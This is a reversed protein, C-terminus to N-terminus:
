ALLEVRNNIIPRGGPAHGSIRLREWARVAALDLAIIAVVTLALWIRVRPVSMFGDGAGHIPSAVDAHGPRMPRSPLLSEYPEDPLIGTLPLGRLHNNLWDRRRPPCQLRVLRIYWM